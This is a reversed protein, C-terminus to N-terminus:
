DEKNADEPDRKAADRLAQARRKKVVMNNYTGLFFAFVSFFPVWAHEPIFAQAVALTIPSTLWSAKVVPLFGVKWAAFVQRLNTAGAVVAMYAVFVSSLIPTVVLNSAVIQALKWLVGTKGRFAKQLGLILYHSLPASIFFGYLAMKPVRSSYYSGTVPDKEGALVSALLESVAGLTASTYAKTRIPNKQLALLYSQLYTDSPKSLSM